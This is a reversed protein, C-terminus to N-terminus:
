PLTIKNGGKLWRLRQEIILQIDMDDMFKGGKHFKTILSGIYKLKSNRLKRKIFNLQAAWLGM